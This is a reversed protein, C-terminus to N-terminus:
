VYLNCELFLAYVLENTLCSLVSFLIVGHIHFPFLIFAVQVYFFCSSPSQELIILQVTRYVNVQLPIRTFSPPPCHPM